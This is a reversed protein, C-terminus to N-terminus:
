EENGQRNLVGMEVTSTNNQTKIAENMKQSGLTMLEIMKEDGFSQMRMTIFDHRATIAYGNLARQIAEAEADWQQILRAIESNATNQSSNTNQTNM